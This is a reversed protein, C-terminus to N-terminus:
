RSEAMATLPFRIKILSQSHRKENFRGQECRLCGPASQFRTRYACDISTYWIQYRLCFFDDGALRGTDPHVTGTTSNKLHLADESM